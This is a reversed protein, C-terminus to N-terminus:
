GEHAYRAGCLGAAEESEVIDGEGLKDKPEVDVVRVFAIFVDVWGITILDRRPVKLGM